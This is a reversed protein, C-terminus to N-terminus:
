IERCSFGVEKQGREGAALWGDKTRKGQRAGVSVLKCGRSGGNVLQPLKLGQSARM